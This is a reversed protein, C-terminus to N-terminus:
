QTVYNIVRSVSTKHFMGGGPTRFGGENLITAIEALTKGNQKLSAAFAGATTNVPNSLANQRITERGRSRGGEGVNDRFAPVWGRERKSQLAAKTRQSIFDREQQAVLAMIGIMFTNAEPMDAAIFDVGSEKLAMTFHANRSLRDLKAIVLTAGTAKSKAIAKLLEPRKNNKGSEIECFVELIQGGRSDVFSQVARLQGEESLGQTGKKEKSIRLYAIFTTKTEM